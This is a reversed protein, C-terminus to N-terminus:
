SRKNAYDDDAVDAVDEDKFDVDLLDDQGDSTKVDV